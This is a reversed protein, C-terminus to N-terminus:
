LVELVAMIVYGVFWGVFMLCAIGIWYVVNEIRRERRQRADFRQWATQQEDNMKYSGEYM